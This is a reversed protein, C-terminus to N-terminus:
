HNVNWDWYSLVRELNEEYESPKARKIYPVGTEVVKRFIRENEPNPNLTFHNKGPFFSIKKNDAEAYARNVRIFNFHLDMYAIMIPTNDLIANLFQHDESVQQNERNFSLKKM